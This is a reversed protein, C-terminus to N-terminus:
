CEDTSALLGLGQVNLSGAIAVYIYREGDKKREKEVVGSFFGGM